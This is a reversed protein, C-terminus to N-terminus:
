NAFTGGFSSHFILQDPPIDGTKPSFIGKRSLIDFLFGTQHHEQEFVFTYDICGVIQPTIFEVEQTLRAIEEKGLHIIIQSEASNGPFITHSFDYVMYPRQRMKNCIERQKGIPDITKDVGVAIAYIEPDVSVHLAPSRGINKLVFLLTVSAGNIDWKWPGVVTVDAYVWPRQSAIFIARNLNNGAIAANASTQAADASKNAAGAQKFAAKALKHTADDTSRLALWQFISVIALVGTFLTVPEKLKTRWSEWVKKKHQAETADKRRQYEEKITM